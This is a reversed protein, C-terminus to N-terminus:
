LSNDRQESYLLIVISCITMHLDSREKYTLLVDTVRICVCVIVIIILVSGLLEAPFM